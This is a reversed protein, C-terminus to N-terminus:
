RPGHPGSHDSEQSRLRVVSWPVVYQCRQGWALRQRSRPTGAREQGPDKVSFM